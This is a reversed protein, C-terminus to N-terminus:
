RKLLVLDGEKDVLEFGQKRFNIFQSNTTLLYKSTSWDTSVNGTDFYYLVSEYARGNVALSTINRNRSALRKVNTTGYDRVLATRCSVIFLICAILILFAGNFRSIRYSLWNLPAIIILIM